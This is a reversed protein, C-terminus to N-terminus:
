TTTPKDVAPKGAEGPAPLDGSPGVAARIKAALRKELVSGAGIDKLFLSWLGAAMLVSQVATTVVEEGSVSPKGLVVIVSPLTALLATCLKVYKGPMTPLLFRLALVLLSLMLAAVLGWRKNRVASVLASVVAGSDEVEAGVLGLEPTVPQVAAAVAPQDVAVESSPEAAYGLDVDQADAKTGTLLCSILFLVRLNIMGPLSSQGRLGALAGTM